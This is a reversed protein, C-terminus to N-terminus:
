IFLFYRPVRDMFAQYSAGYQELCGKEEGLIRFHNFVIRVGLLLLAIWSGVVIACSVLVLAFTVWQPNRSFRYIGTTVPEDFPTNKFNILALIFGSLGLVYLLFGIYFVPQGIKLSTLVILVMGALAFPLGISSITRQQGTWGSRDYLREVVEKPFRAMLFGFITYFLVLPIWGNALGLQLRPFLEMM